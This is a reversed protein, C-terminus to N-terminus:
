DRRDLWRAIKHTSRAIISSRAPMPDPSNKVNDVSNSKGNVGPQYRIALGQYDGYRNYGYGYGYGYKQTRSSLRRSPLNALMGLVDVGTGQMRELAQAPLDRHVREIGVVLLLGDLHSALLVPDSLLFAPPTDFLVLDYQSLDRIAAVVQGCRESSLLRTTDPPMPGAPLLDLGQQVPIVCGALDMSTDTLLSSLGDANEVGLYHHLMPRRMDADVLLVKTGLQALTLAFLSTTISKGEGQTASTLAVLNLSKDARLLRFNAFLNRLSERMEFRQSADMAEVALPVTTTTVQPLHPVLGLLPLPLEDKLERPDHFVPDMRDRLLAAATGGVGGLLLSLVLNRSVSPKMPRRGFTPPALVSWPVTRQAVQLRFNERAKIYSSLNDRAVELQQQLAQYQKIQNPNARFSVALQALQQNIEQQQSLNQSLDAQLEREQRQQLLPKLRDRKARLERVQPSSETFNAQAEALEEEVQNLETLPSGVQSPVPAKSPSAAGGPEGDPLSGSGPLLAPSTRLSTGLEGRRVAELRGQLRAQEQQLGEIQTALSQRQTLIAGAQQEPEVFGKSRRFAALQSQLRNVREQLEPAQQDLFSLGQTLKEQRQRLSYGLFVQSLEKLIVEGQIPDQWQLSVELVGEEAGRSARGSKPSGVTLSQGLSGTPLGLRGEVPTLLLPSTLVQILTGTNTNGGGPLALQEFGSKDRDSSEDQNIPDSVLLQFSGAFTPSFMRQWATISAGALVSGVLVTLALRRRRGLAQLVGRLDIEEDPAPPPSGAQIIPREGQGKLGTASMTVLRDPSSSDFLSHFVSFFGNPVGLAHLLGSPALPAGAGSRGVGRSYPSDARIVGHFGRPFHGM